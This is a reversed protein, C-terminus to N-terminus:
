PEDGFFAALRDNVSQDPPRGPLDFFEICVKCKAKWKDIVEITTDPKLLDHQCKPDASGKAGELLQAAAVVPGYYRETEHISTLNSLRSHMDEAVGYLASLASRLQDRECAPCKNDFLALNPVLGHTACSLPAAFQELEDRHAIDARLRENDDTLGTVNQELALIRWKDGAPDADTELDHIYQRVREPLANIEASLPPNATLREVECPAGLKLVVGRAWDMIAAKDNDLLLMAVRKADERLQDRECFMCPTVRQIQDFTDGTRLIPHGCDSV